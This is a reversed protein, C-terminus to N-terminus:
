LALVANAKEKELELSEQLHDQLTEIYTKPDEIAKELEKKRQLVLEAVEEHEAVAKKM